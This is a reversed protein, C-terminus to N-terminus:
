YGKGNSERIHATNSLINLIFCIFVWKQVLFLLKDINYKRIHVREASNLTQCTTIMDPMQWM